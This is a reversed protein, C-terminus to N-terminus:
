FISTLTNVGMNSTSMKGSLSQRNLRAPVSSSDITVSSPV